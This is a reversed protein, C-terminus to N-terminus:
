PYIITFDNARLYDLDLKVRKLLGRNTGHIGEWEIAKVTDHNFIFYYQTVGNRYFNELCGELGSGVQYISNLSMFGESESPFTSGNNAWVSDNPNDDWTWNIQLTSNNKITFYSHSGPPCDKNKGCTAATCLILVVIIWCYVISPKLYTKNVM